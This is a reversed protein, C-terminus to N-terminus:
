IKQIFILTYYPPKNDIYGSSDISLGHSHTQGSGVDSTKGGDAEKQETGALYARDDSNGGGSSREGIPNSSNLDAYQTIGGTTAVTLHSHTPLEDESLAHGAVTGTHNHANNDVGGEDGVSTEIGGRIFKDVLNPTGNLGNCLRWGNPITQGSWMIIAGSPMVNVTLADVETQVSNVAAISAFKTTVNENPDNSIPYNPVNGLGVQSKTVSHPNTTLDAHANVKGDTESVSYVDLNTRATSVNALDSLNNAIALQADDTVNNLGITLKTINHPNVELKHLDFLVSPFIKVDQSGQKVHLLDTANISVAANLDSIEKLAM